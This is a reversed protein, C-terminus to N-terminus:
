LFNNFIVNTESEEFIDEWSETIFKCQFEDITFSNINMVCYSTFEQIPTMVNELIQLLVDRDSLGSILPNISVIDQYILLFTIL